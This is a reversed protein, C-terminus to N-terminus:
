SRHADVIWLLPMSDPFRVGLSAILLASVEGNHYSSLIEAVDDKLVYFVGPIFALTRLSDQALESVAFIADPLAGPDLNGQKSPGIKDLLQKKTDLLEVTIGTLKRSM